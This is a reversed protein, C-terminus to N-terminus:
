EDVEMAGEVMENDIERNEGSVAREDSEASDHVQSASSTSPTMTELQHAIKRMEEDIRDEVPDLKVRPAMWRSNQAGSLMEEKFDLLERLTMPTLKEKIAEEVSRSNYQGRLRGYKMRRLHPDNGEQYTQELIQRKLGLLEELSVDVLDSSIRLTPNSEDDPRVHPTPNRPFNWQNAFRPDELFNTDSAAYDPESQSNEPIPARADAGTAPVIEEPAISEEEPPAHHTLARSAWVPLEFPPDDAHPRRIREGNGIILLGECHACVFVSTPVEVETRCCPCLPRGADLGIVDKGYREFADMAIYTQFLVPEECEMCLWAEERGYRMPCNCASYATGFEKIIDTSCKGCVRLLAGMRRMHKSHDTYLGTPDPLYDGRRFYICVNCVYHTQHFNLNECPRIDQLGGRINDHYHEMCRYEPPTIPEYAPRSVPSTPRISVKEERSSNTFHEDGPLAPNGANTDHNESDRRRLYELREQGELASSQQVAASTTNVTSPDAM